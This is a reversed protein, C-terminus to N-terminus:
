EITMKTGIIQDDLKGKKEPAQLMTAWQNIPEKCLFCKRAFHPFRKHFPIRMLGYDILWSWREGLIWFYHGFVLGGFIDISYHARCFIVMMGMCILTLVMAHSLKHYRMDRFECFNIVGLGLYQSFYFSNYVGYTVSLSYIGPFEWIYGYPYAM